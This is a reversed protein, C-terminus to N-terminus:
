MSSYFPGQGLKPKQQQPQQQQEGVRFVSPVPLSKGHLRRKKRGEEGSSQRFTVKGSMGEQICSQGLDASGSRQHHMSVSRLVPQDSTSKPRVPRWSRIESSMNGLSQKNFPQPGLSRSLSPPSAHPSAVTRKQHQLHEPSSSPLEYLEVPINCDPMNRKSPQTPPAVGQTSGTSSVTSSAALQHNPSSSATSINKAQPSSLSFDLGCNDGKPQNSTQSAAKSDEVESSSGDTTDWKQGCEFRDVLHRVTPSDDEGPTEAPFGFVPAENGPGAEGLIGQVKRPLYKDNECLPESTIGILTPDSQATVRFKDATHETTSSTVLEHSVFCCGNDGGSSFMPASKAHMSDQLASPRLKDPCEAESSPSFSNAANSDVKKADDGACLGKGATLSLAQCDTPPDSMMAPQQQQEIKRVFYKVMNSCSESETVNEGSEAGIICKSSSSTTPSMLLASGIERILALTDTDLNGKPRQSQPEEPTGTTANSSGTCGQVAMSSKLAEIRHLCELDGGRVRQLDDLSRRHSDSSFYLSNPAGESLRQYKRSGLGPTSREQKLSSTRLVPRLAREEDEEGETGAILFRHREEIERRTRLVTGPELPIEEKAYLSLCDSGSEQDRCTHPGDDPISGLEMCSRSLLMGSLPSVPMGEKQQDDGQLSDAFDEPGTGKLDEAEEEATLHGTKNIDERMKKVKGPSWPIKERFFYQRVGMEIRPKSASSVEYSKPSTPKDPNITDDKHPVASTLNVKPGESVSDASESVVSTNHKHIDNRLSSKPSLKNHEAPAESAVAPMGHSAKHTKKSALDAADTEMLMPTDTSDTETVGHITLSAGSQTPQCQHQNADAEVQSPPPPLTAGTAPTCPMSQSTGGDTSSEGIDPGLDLSLPRIWSSDPKIRLTASGRNGGGGDEESECCEAAGSSKGERESSSACNEGSVPEGLGSLCTAQSDSAGFEQIMNSSSSSAPAKLDDAIADDMSDASRAEAAELDGEMQMLEPTMGRGAQLDAIWEEEYAVGGSAAMPWDSHSMVHFLSDGLFSGQVPEMDDKNHADDLLNQDSKSRFIDRKNSATLIGEYMNLQEMFGDNPRVISRKSKVFKYAEDVSWRRDKMLFAMVTSASRSIGMKCHVLVKSHNNRAKCIFKYTKDWHKLLDSEEVDFVRVNYYQLMGMFFNDIERTVNLIYGIGKSKIEELNSANWESGLYLFDLIESPEDMQGLIRMVEEDFYSKFETLSIGMKKEVARRLEISTAEDLDVVMMVEKLKQSITLKICEKEDDSKIALSSPALVEIGEINWHGQRAHDAHNIRSRYYGVWTHTLGDHIYKMTEAMNFVKVLSQIASWMAQVSVPKFLYSNEDTYLSFGGDGGLKMKLGLWVPLVLGVSAGTSGCDLGLIVCEETDQRGKTSVLAMYRHYNSVVDELRIAIKITDEPRLIHLMAQLHHQIEGGHSKKTTKRTCENHPLILAAGKVTFYSESLGPRLKNILRVTSFIHRLKERPTRSRKRLQSRGDSADESSEAGDNDTSPSPSRQITVLAM